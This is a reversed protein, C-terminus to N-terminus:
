AVGDLSTLAHWEVHDASFPQVFEIGAAGNRVWRVIGQVLPDEELRISVFTGSRLWSEEMKVNCGHTSVDALIIESEEGYSSRLRAQIWSSRRPVRRREAVRGGPTRVFTGNGSTM